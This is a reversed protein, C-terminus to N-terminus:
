HGYALRRALFEPLGSDIINKQTLEYNYEIRKITLARKDTNLIGFSAKPDGDRPQGVAGVNILYKYGQKIELTMGDNLYCSNIKNDHKIYLVPVHTHGFFCVNEKFVDFNQKAIYNNLIYEEIKNIPSGHLFLYSLRNHETTETISLNSISDLNSKTIVEQTWLIARRASESFYDLSIKRIVAWEHNGPVIKCSPINKVFKICENPSPGYGIVDGLIFCKNIGIGKVKIYYFVEKLAEFNSHIDALILIKMKNFHM